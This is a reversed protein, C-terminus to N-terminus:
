GYATVHGGATVVVLRGVRSLTAGTPIGAGASVATVPTGTSAPRSTFGDSAAFLVQGEALTPPGTAPATWLVARNRTDVAVATTGTWLVVFDGDAVGAPTGGTALRPDRVTGSETAILKGAADEATTFATLVPGALVTVREDATLM